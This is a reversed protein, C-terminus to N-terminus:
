TMVGLITYIFRETQQYLDRADVAGIIICTNDITIASEDAQRLEVVPNEPTSDECTKQPLSTDTNNTLAREIVKDQLQVEFYYQASALDEAMDSQPNYTVTFVPSSLLMKIEEPMTIYELDQPYFLFGREIGNIKTFFQNNKIKFTYEGYELKEEPSLFEVVMGFISFIMIFAFFLGILVKKNM